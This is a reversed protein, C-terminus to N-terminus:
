KIKRHTSYYKLANLASDSNYIVPQGKKHLIPYISDKCMGWLTDYQPAETPSQPDSLDIRQHNQDTNAVEYANNRSILFVLTLLFAVVMAFYYPFASKAKNEPDPTNKDNNTM